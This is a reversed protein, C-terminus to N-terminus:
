LLTLVAQYFRTNESELLIQVSDKLEPPIKRSSPNCLIYLLQDSESFDRRPYNGLNCAEEIRGQLVLLKGKERIGRSFDYLKQSMTFAKEAESYNGNQMLYQGLLFLADSKEKNTLEERELYRNIVEITNEDNMKVLLGIKLVPSAISEPLYFLITRLEELKKTSILFFYAFTLLNKSETQTLIELISGIEEFNARFLVPYLRYFDESSIKYDRCLDRIASEHESGITLLSKYRSYHLLLDPYKRFKRYLYYLRTAVIRQFKPDSSAQLSREYLPISFLSYDKELRYGKEYISLAPDAHLSDLFLLSVLFLPKGCGM